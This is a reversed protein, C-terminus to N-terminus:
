SLYDNNKEDSLIKYSSYNPLHDLNNNWKKNNNNNIQFDVYVGRHDSAYIPSSKEVMDLGKRNETGPFANQGIVKYDNVTVNCSNRYMIYDIRKRPRNSEFTYLDITNKNPEEKYIDFYSDKLDTKVNELEYLGELFQISKTNPKANFDGM